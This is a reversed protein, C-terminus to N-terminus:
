LSITPSQKVRARPWLAKLAQNLQNFHLLALVYMGVQIRKLPPKSLPWQLVEPLRSFRVQSVHTSILNLLKALSNLGLLYLNILM